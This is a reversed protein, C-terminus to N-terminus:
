LILGSLIMIAPVLRPAKPASYMAQLKGPYKVLSITILLKSDLVFGELIRNNFPVKVRIGKKIKEYLFSPVLYDFTKDININSIEILVKVIM